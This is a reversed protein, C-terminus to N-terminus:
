SAPSLNNLSAYRLRKLGTLKKKGDVGSYREYLASLSKLADQRASEYVKENVAIAARRCTSQWREKYMYFGRILAAPTEPLIAVLSEILMVSQLEEDPMGIVTGVPSDGRSWAVSHRAAPGSRYYKAWKELRQVLVVDTEVSELVLM